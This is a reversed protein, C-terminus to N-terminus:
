ERDEDTDQASQVDDGSTEEEPTRVMRILTGQGGLMTAYRSHNLYYRSLQSPSGARSIGSPSGAIPSVVAMPSEPVTTVASGPGVPDRGSLSLIAVVAVSAAVAVGALPRLLSLRRAASGREGAPASQGDIERAVRAPLEAPDGPVVEDRIVDGILAYRSAAGRLDADAGFRRALLDAERVDLEDDVFASLQERNINKM